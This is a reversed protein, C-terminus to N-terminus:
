LRSWSTQSPRQYIGAFAPAIPRRSEVIWEHWLYGFWRRARSGGLNQNKNEDQWLVRVRCHIAKAEIEGAGKHLDIFFKHKGLVGLDLFDLSKRAVAMDETRLRAESSSSSM